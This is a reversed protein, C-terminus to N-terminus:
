RIKPGESVYNQYEGRAEDLSEELTQGEFQIREVLDAWIKEVGDPNPKYYNDAYLAGEAFIASSNDAAQQAAIVDKRAGPLQTEAALTNQAESQSLYYLFREAAERKVAKKSNRSLEVSMGDMFFYGYTKKNNADLQPLKAVDYKLRSNRQKLVGDMFKYHIMYALDGAVFQDVNNNSSTNWSYRSDRTDAFDTYFDLANYVPDQNDETGSFGTDSSVGTEVDLKNRSDLAVQGTQYDYIQGGSQFILLPIIDQFRNINNSGASGLDGTGLSIANQSFSIGSKDRKNLIDLQKDLDQWTLPPLAIGSQALIDKNYYLQMNEVYSTIAYVEDRDTTDRAALDVFQNRYDNLIPGNFVSIPSLFEKYAPLYDNRLTFIDPGANRAIDAVIDNYYDVGNGYNKTVFNIEINENGPIKQFDAIVQSYTDASNFPKWWTLEAAIPPNSLVPELTTDKKPTSFILYAVLSAVLTVVAVAVIIINRRNAFFERM